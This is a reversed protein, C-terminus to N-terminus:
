SAVGPLLMVTAGVRDTFPAWWVGMVVISAILMGGSRRERPTLDKLDSWRPNFPGFFVTGFMRLMYAAALAAAFIALAGFVPYTQFTGVFIHFEATFGSFGPLGVNALGAIAYFIVWLPMVKAIGGFDKMDRTHAQDYLAGIMLFVLATMVGHSFMQLVAGTIGLENMTALGMLVYGMHSVSSYGSILKFDRQTLAATAGYVAGIVGLVMLGPMWFEAGEPMLQIGLRIIGFAGLKMLVGAHVMSVATPASMHGDPSWTHFPWLAALVGCGIVMFPFFVKQFGPSLTGDEGAAWLQVLDFTGLNAEHFVAFVGIWILVSGGVLMLTLKAAGYEKRTSGWVGILLYLPMVALEYFFFFFFLDYSFFTGFVGALLTWYLIYFDKNRFDLKWSALAGAFAVVGTLLAMTASIGDVALYLTIGNEKLFATNEVWTWRLTMQVDDGNVQYAAFIYISLACVIAGTIASIYRVLMKESGPTLVLIFAAALPVALTALVIYGQAEELSM